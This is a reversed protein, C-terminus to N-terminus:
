LQALGRKAAERVSRDVATDRTLQELTGAAERDRAAVLFDIMSVQVLPSQERPLSALVGARVVDEGAHPYLADLATLRVNVSPDLALAGILQTLVQPDAKAAAMSSLVGQLREPTSREQLLSYSVLQGMSDVRHRLDALERATAPDAAPAAAPIVAPPAYRTGALFGVILLGCAAVPAFIWRLLTSRTRQSARRAAAAVSAASNKEEELLAYFHTRLRPSPAPAPLADLAALTKNLAAFERQCDPCHALHARVDAAVPAALRQDLLDPFHDRALTCNM